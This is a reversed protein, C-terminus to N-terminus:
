RIVVSELFRLTKKNSQILEEIFYTWHYIFIDVYFWEFSHVLFDLFKKRNEDLINKKALALIYMFTWNTLMSIWPLNRKTELVFLIYNDWNELNVNQRLKSIHNNFIKILDQNNSCIDMYLNDSTLNVSQHWIKRTPIWEDALKTSCSPTSTVRVKIFILM